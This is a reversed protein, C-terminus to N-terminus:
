KIQPLIFQNRISNTCLRVLIFGRHNRVWLRVGLRVWLREGLREGLREWFDKGFDINFQVRVEGFFRRKNLKGFISYNFQRLHTVAKNNSGEHSLRSNPDNRFVDMGEVNPLVLVAAPCGGPLISPTM